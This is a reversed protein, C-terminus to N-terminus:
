RLAVCASELWCPRQTGYRPAGPICGLPKCRQQVHMESPPLYNQAARLGDQIMARGSAVAFAYRQLTDFVHLTYCSREPRRSRQPAVTRAQQVPRASQM